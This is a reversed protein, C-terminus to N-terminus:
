LISLVTATVFWDMSVNGSHAQQAQGVYKMSILDAARGTEDLTSEVYSPM